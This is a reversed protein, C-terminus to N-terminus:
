VKITGTIGLGFTVVGLVLYSSIAIAFPWMHSHQDYLVGGVKNIMLVGISGSIGFVAYLTGRSEPKVIKSM